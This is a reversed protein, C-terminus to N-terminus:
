RRGAALGARAHNRRADGPAAFRQKANRAVVEDLEDRTIM